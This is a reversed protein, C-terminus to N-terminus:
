DGSLNSYNDHSKTDFGSFQSVRFPHADKSFNNVQFDCSMFLVFGLADTWVFKGRKLQLVCESANNSISLSTLTHQYIILTKDAINPHWCLIVVSTSHMHTHTHTRTPTDGQICDLFRAVCVGERLGGVLVTIFHPNTSPVPGHQMFQQTICIPARSFGQILGTAATAAAASPPHLGPVSDKGRM